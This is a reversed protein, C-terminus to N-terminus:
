ALSLYVHLSYKGQSARALKKSDPSSASTLTTTAHINFQKGDKFFIGTDTATHQNTDNKVTVCKNADIVNTSLKGNTFRGEVQQGTKFYM